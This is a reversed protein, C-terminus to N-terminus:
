LIGTFRAIQILSTIDKAGTRLLMNRRHTNVTDLSIFLEDAVQKSSKGIAVLRLVDLERNTIVDGQNVKYGESSIGHFTLAKEGKGMQLRSWYHDGKFLHSIDMTYGIWYGTCGNSNLQLGKGIQLLRITHGAKHKFKIGVNFWIIENPGFGSSRGEMIDFLWAAHYVPFSFHDIPIRNLLLLRQNDLLESQSYGIVQEINEGVIPWEFKHSDFVGYVMMPIVNLQSLHNFKELHEEKLLEHNKDLMMQDFREIIKQAMQVSYFLPLFQKRLSRWEIM